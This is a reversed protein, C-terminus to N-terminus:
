CDEEPRHDRTGDVESYDASPAAGTDPTGVLYSMQLAPGTLPFLM